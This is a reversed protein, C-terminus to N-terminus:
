KSMSSFIDVFVSFHEEMEQLSKEGNASCAIVPQANDMIYVLLMQEEADFAYWATAMRDQSVDYFACSSMIYPTGHKEDLRSDPTSSEAFMWNEIGTSQFRLAVEKDNLITGQVTMSINEAVVAGGQLLTGKMNTDVETAGSRLLLLAAVIGVLVVSIILIPIRKSQKM